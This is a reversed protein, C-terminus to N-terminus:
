QSLAFQRFIPKSDEQPNFVMLDPVLDNVMQNEYCFDQIFGFFDRGVKVPDVCEPLDLDAWYIDYSQDLEDYGQLDWFIVDHGTASDGFVFASNLLTLYNQDRELDRQVDNRVYENIRDIMYTLNEKSERIFALTSCYIRVSDSLMGSGLYQCFCKYDAPLVINCELEVLRLDEECLVEQGESSVIELKEILNVWKSEMALDECWSIGAALM